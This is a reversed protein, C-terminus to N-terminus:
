FFVFWVFYVFGFSLIFALSRIKNPKIHKWFYFDVIMVVAPFYALFYSLYEKFGVLLYNFLPNKSLIEKVEKNMISDPDYIYLGWYLLFM